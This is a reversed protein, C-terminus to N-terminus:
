DEELGIVNTLRLQEPEIRVENVEVNVEYHIIENM